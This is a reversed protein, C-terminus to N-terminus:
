EQVVRYFTGTSLLKHLFNTENNSDGVVSSSINLTVETGNQIGSKLKSLQSNSLKVNLTNYHIMKYQYM